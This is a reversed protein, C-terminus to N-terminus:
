TGALARESRGLLVGSERAVTFVNETNDYWTLSYAGNGTRSTTALKKGSADSYLDITVTGGSSGTIDGAVSYTISHTTVVRVITAQQVVQGYLRQKRATELDMDSGEVIPDNPYHRWNEIGTFVYTHWGVEGPTAQVIGDITAWGDAIGNGEGSLIEAYCGVFGATGSSYNDVHTAIGNLYYSSQPINPTRQNTTAIELSSTGAIAGTIHDALMWRTTVNEAGTGQTAVDSVYNIVWYGGFSNIINTNSCYANLRLKNRGRALTLATGGHALDIRHIATRTGSHVGNTANYSRVTTQSGGSVGAGSAIVAVTTTSTIQSFFMLVGSQKITVTGPEEIFFETEFVDRNAATTSALYGVSSKIPIM